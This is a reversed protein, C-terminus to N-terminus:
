VKDVHLLFKALSIDMGLKVFKLLSPQDDLRQKAEFRMFPRIMGLMTQLKWNPNLIYICQLTNKYKEEVGKYFIHLLDLKPMPLKHLDKADFMWIWQGIYEDLHEYYSEITARTFEKELADFPKSYVLTVGKSTKGLVKFSHTNPIQQCIKCPM